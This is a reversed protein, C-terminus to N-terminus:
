ICKVRLGERLVNSPFDVIKEGDKLGNKIYIKGEREMEIPCEKQYIFDNQVCYLYATNGDRRRLASEPLSFYEGFAKSQLSCKAFMGLKLKNGANNVPIKIYFNGTESDALPSIFDVVSEESFGASEIQVLAKAGISIKELDKEQVSIKAYPTEMDIVTLLKENQTVREGNEFYLAGIIGDCPSRITLADILENISELDRQANRLEVQALEIQIKASQTNLDLLQEKRKELDDSPIIGQRLLDKDQYGLSQILLEKSLMDIETKSAQNEMQMEEIASASLGGAEYLKQNKELNKSKLSYEEQKQLLNTRANELALMTSIVNREQETLNNKAARLKAGASNLQNQREAKQIEYQINKLVFLTQGKKVPSGEIVRQEIITGDVLACVDNKKKYTISGYSELNINQMAKKVTITKVQLSEAKKAKNNACSCVIFMLIAATILAKRAKM